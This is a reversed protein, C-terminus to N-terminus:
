NKLCFAEFRGCGFEKIDVALVAGSPFFLHPLPPAGLSAPQRLVNELSDIETLSRLEIEGAQPPM